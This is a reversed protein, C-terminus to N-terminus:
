DLLSLVDIALILKLSNMRTDYRLQRGHRIAHGNLSKERRLRTYEKQFDIQRYLHNEFYLLLSNIAASDTLDAFSIPANELAQCVIKRTRGGIKMEHGSTRIFDAATGEIIMMM